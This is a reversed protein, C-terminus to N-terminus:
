CCARMCPPMCTVDCCGLLRSRGMESPPFANIFDFTIFRITDNLVKSILINIAVTFETKTMISVSGETNKIAKEDGLAM